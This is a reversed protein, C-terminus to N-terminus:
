GFCILRGDSSGIVIRGSALAPSASLPSGADYEWIKEGKALGLVYFRGDNSGVYVRGGAIVPSSDVRARTMFTWRAKGNTANLAHIMKDRGGIVVLGDAVAASSYFPFHRDKHAYRWALKRTKLDFALVENNFTGFYARAGAIAASAGTNAAFPITFVEKGDAIRIVHFVEDCGSLYALGDAVAPTAHIYNQTELSWLLKGDNTALAYLKGDYSGILVRDGVVVPSSKIEAATKFTWLKKGDTARVAHLVGGLDGVYVTGDAVAPSSEGAFDEMKYKWVVKGDTFNLAVLEGSGVAAFVRGDAIAASSQITDGAEYSWLVKLSAPPAAAAVGTLSPNGRFQPWLDAPPTTSPAQAVVRGAESQASAVDSLFAPLSSRLSSRHSGGEPPLICALLVALAARRKVM